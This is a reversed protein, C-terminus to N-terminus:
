SSMTFMAYLGERKETVRPCADVVDLAKRVDVKDRIDGEVLCFGLKGFHQNLNERGSSFDDLVVVDFGEDILRDV